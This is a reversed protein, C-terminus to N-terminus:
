QLKQGLEQTALAILQTIENVTSMREEFIDMLDLIGLEEGSQEVMVEPVQNLDKATPQIVTGSQFSQIQRALHM